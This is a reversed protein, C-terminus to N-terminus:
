LQYVEIIEQPLKLEKSLCNRINEAERSKNVTKSNNDDQSINIKIRKIASVSGNKYGVKISKVSYNKIKEDYVAKVNVDYDGKYKIKLKEECLKKLNMEFIQATYNIGKSKYDVKDRKIQSENFHENAKRCYTNIDFKNDVLKIIPNLIVTILILGLIFKGYRKFNNDPLLMQAATIFFVAVCINIIWGKLALLM